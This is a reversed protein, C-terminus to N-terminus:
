SNCTLCTLFKGDTYIVNGLCEDNGCDERVVDYNSDCVPCYLETADSSKVTLRALKEELEIKRYANDLCVPCFYERRRSDINFYKEIQKTKLHKMALATEHCVTNTAVEWGGLEASPSSNLFELRVKPWTEEPMLAKHMYLIADVVQSVSVEINHGVSHMLKNRQERMENFRSVFEQSLPNDSFLDHTRILDQADITRFDSFEVGSTGRPSPWNRPSDAILIYPSIEAIKGKLLLEVGQQTVSLATTISRTSAKWYAESVESPDVGYYEAQDFTTLLEAVVGWAFNFLEKGSSYFDDPTPINKVM